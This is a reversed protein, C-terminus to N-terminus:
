RWVGAAIESLGEALARLRGLSIGGVEGVLQPTARSPNVTAPRLGLARQLVQCALKLTQALLAALLSLLALALLRALTLPLGLGTLTLTLRLRGTLPLSLALVLTVLARPLALTLARPLACTLLAVPRIIAVAGFTDGDFESGLRVGILRGGAAGVRVSLGLALATATSLETL